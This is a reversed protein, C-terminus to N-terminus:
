NCERSIIWWTSRKMNYRTKMMMENSHYINIHYMGIYRLCTNSQGLTVIEKGDNDYITLEPVGSWRRKGEAKAKGHEEFTIINEEYALGAAVAALRLPAGRGDFGFYTIKFSPQDTKQEAM